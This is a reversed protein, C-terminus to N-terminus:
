SKHPFPRPICRVDERGRVPVDLVTLYKRNRVTMSSQPLEADNLMGALFPMQRGPNSETDSARPPTLDTPKPSGMHRRVLGDPIENLSPLDEMDIDYPGDKEVMEKM